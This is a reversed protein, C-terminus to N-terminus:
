ASNMAIRSSNVYSSMWKKAGHQWREDKHLKMPSKTRATRRHFTVARTTGSAREPQRGGFCSTRDGSLQRDFPSMPMTGCDHTEDEIVDGSHRGGGGRLLRPM